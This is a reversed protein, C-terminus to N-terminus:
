PNSFIDTTATSRTLVPAMAPITLAEVSVLRSIDSSPWPSADRRNSAGSDPINIDAAVAEVVAPAVIADADNAGLMKAEPMVAMHPAASTFTPEVTNSWRGWPENKWAM